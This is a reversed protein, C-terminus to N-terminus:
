PQLDRGPQRSALRGDGEADVEETLFVPHQVTIGTEELVERRLAEEVSEGNEVAGGFGSWCGPHPIGLRDDRRHLLLKRDDTVILLM